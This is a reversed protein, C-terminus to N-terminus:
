SATLGMSALSAAVMDDPLWDLRPAATWLLGCRVPRGPYLRGLLAAYVAMQACYDGAETELADAPPPKANTKFDVALVADPAIVLRDISGSVPRAVGRADVLAGRIPVEARAISGPTTPYLPLTDPLARVTAAQQLAADLREDSLPLGGGATDAGARARDLRAALERDPPADRELLAHVLTGFALADRGPPLHADEGDLTQRLREDLAAHRDAERQASWGQADSGADRRASSPRLPVAAQRIPLPAKLQALLAAVAAEDSTESADRKHTDVDPEESPEPWPQARWLRAPADLGDPVGVDRAEAGLARDILAYWSQPHPAGASASVHGTVILQDRARTMAVYLLRRYEQMQRAMLGAKIDAYALASPGGRLYLPSPPPRNGGPALPDPDPGDPMVLGRPSQPITCTDVLIVTGAELGKAGHVTMIRVQNARAEMDRKVEIDARGLADVFAELSLLGSGPRQEEARALRVVEDLPDLCDEGLRAMMKRRGGDRGLVTSLFAFPSAFDAMARWRAITQAANKIAPVDTEANLADILFGRRGVCLAELTADSLGILPSKLLTALTLDDEPLLMARMLAILDQVAIHDTLVIRDAGAVPVNQRKLEFTIANLMAGRRRLLVLIDGPAQGSDILTRVKAAVAGALRVHPAPLADVPETWAEPEDERTGVIVPWLEVLGRGRRYAEHVLGDAEA